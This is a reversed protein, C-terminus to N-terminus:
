VVWSKNYISISNPMEVNLHKRKVKDWRITRQLPHKHYKNSIVTVPGNDKGKVLSIHETFVEGMYGREMKMMNVKSMLPAKQQRDERLTVTAVIGKKTLEKLISITTFLNDSVVHQGSKLELMKTHFLSGDSSSAVWVKFGFRIPKGRIFRKDGHKGYYLIMIEDMCCHEPVKKKRKARLGHKLYQFLSCLKYFPDESLEMNDEFHLVGM